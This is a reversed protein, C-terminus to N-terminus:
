YERTAHFEIEPWREMTLDLHIRSPALYTLTGAGDLAFHSEAKKRFDALKLEDDSTVWRATAVDITDYTCEVGYEDKLRFAVVDFQLNGVAGVVVENRSLPRFVQAAGEEGLENLGKHLAKVRLPDRLVVRRFLEPAFSPIGGFKLDEGETFTDGIKINGHNYLGIIDGAVATEVRGRDRALFTIANPFLVSKKRRVHFLKKNPEYRGSVIRLFAIRDRHKPDMNAQVKFVFGSFPKEEPAVERQATAPRPPPAYDVFNDLLEQVGFNNIASGFFVPTLEGKLYADRDFAHSAGRVLEVGERLEGAQDGLLEDLRTNDLGKVLEGENVRGGHTPSFLSVQDHVVHYAGRFRKGSGIPWTIPACRIKLVAEIEDLLELPDRCERDLKNIFTIIPTARM